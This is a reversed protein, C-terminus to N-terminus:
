ASRSGRLLWISILASLGEFGAAGLTYASADGLLLASSSRTLCLGLYICSLTLLVGESRRPHLAGILALVGVATQLGGYMARIEVEATLTTPSLGAFTTLTSPVFLCYLGYGIWGIATIWLFVTTFM